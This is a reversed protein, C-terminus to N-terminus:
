QWVISDIMPQFVAVADAFHTPVDEQPLFMIVIQHGQVDVVIIRATRNAPLGPPIMTTGEADEMPWPEDAPGSRVDFQKADLGGVHVNVPRKVLKRGSATSLWGGLDTPPDLLTGPHKLDPIKDVRAIFFDNGPDHGFTYNFFSTGNVDVEGRAVTM